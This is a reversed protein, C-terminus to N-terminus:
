LSQYDKNNMMMMMIFLILVILLLLLIINYYRQKVIFDPVILPHKGTFEDLAALLHGWTLWLGGDQNIQHWLIYGITETVVAFTRYVDDNDSFYGYWHTYSYNIPQDHSENDNAVTDNNTPTTVNDASSNEDENDNGTSDQKCLLWLFVSEWAPYSVINDIHAPNLQLLSIFQHCVTHRVVLKVSRLLQLVAM